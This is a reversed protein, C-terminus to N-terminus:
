SAWQKATPWVMGTSRPRVFELTRYNVVPQFLYAEAGDSHLAERRMRDLRVYENM